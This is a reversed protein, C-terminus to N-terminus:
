VFKLKKKDPLEVPIYLAIALIHSKRKKGMSESNLLATVGYVQLHYSTKVNQKLEYSTLKNSFYIWYLEYSGTPRKNSVCHFSFSFMHGFGHTYYLIKDQKKRTCSFSLLYIGGHVHFSYVNLKGNLLDKKTYLTLAM